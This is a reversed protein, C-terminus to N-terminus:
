AKQCKLIAIPCIKSFAKIRSSIINAISNTPKVGFIESELGKKKYMYLYLTFHQHFLRHIENIDYLIENTRIDRFSIPNKIFFDSPVM